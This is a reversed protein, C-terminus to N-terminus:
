TKDHVIVKAMLVSTSDLRQYDLLSNHPVHIGIKKRISEDGGMQVLSFPREKEQDSLTFALFSKRPSGLTMMLSASGTGHDKGSSPSSQPHESRIAAALIGRVSKSMSSIKSASSTLAHNGLILSYVELGEVGHFHHTFRNYQTTRAADKM